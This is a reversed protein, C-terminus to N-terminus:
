TSQYFQRVNRVDPEQQQKLAIRLHTMLALAVTSLTSTLQASADQQRINHLMDQLLEQLLSARVAPPLLEIPGALCIEVLQRWGQLFLLKAKTLKHQSNARQLWRLVDEVEAELKPQSANGTQDIQPGLEHRLLNHLYVLNVINDESAKKALNEVVNIDLLDTNPPDPFTQNLDLMRFIELVKLVNSDDAGLATLEGITTNQMVSGNADSALNKMGGRQFILQVLRATNSRQRSISTVHLELASLKLLWGTTRLFQADIGSSPTELEILQRNVFDHSSRLYRLAPASTETNACLRYILEFGLEVLEPSENRVSKFSLIELLSHFVTKPSNLVGPDQLSASALSSQLPYGLLFHSLSVSISDVNQLMLRLLQLRCDSSGPDSLELCEWFGRLLEDRQTSPGSNFNLNESKIIPLL